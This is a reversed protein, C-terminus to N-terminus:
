LRHLSKAYYLNIYPRRSTALKSNQIIIYVANVLYSIPENM